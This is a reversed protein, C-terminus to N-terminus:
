DGGDEVLIFQEVGKHFLQLRAPNVPLPFSVSQLDAYSIRFIGENWVKVKFYQQDSNSQGQSFRIWENGYPQSFSLWAYCLFPILAFVRKM